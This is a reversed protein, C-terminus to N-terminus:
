IQTEPQDEKHLLYMIGGDCVMAGAMQTMAVKSFLQKALFSFPKLILKVTAKPLKKLIDVTSLNQSTVKRVAESQAIKQVVRSNKLGAVSKTFTQKLQVKQAVRKAVKELKLKAKNYRDIASQASNVAVGAVGSMAGTGVIAEAVAVGQTQTATDAKLYYKKKQADWKVDGKDIYVQLQRMAQNYNQVRSQRLGELATIQQDLKEVRQSAGQPTSLEKIITQKEHEILATELKQKLERRVKQEKDDTTSKKVGQVCQHCLSGAETQSEIKKDASSFAGAMKKISDWVAFEVALRYLSGAVCGFGLHKMVGVAGMALAPAATQYVRGQKNTLYLSKTKQRFAKQEKASCPPVGATVKTRTGAPKVFSPTMRFQGRVDVMCIDGSEQRYFGASARMSDVHTAGYASAMGYVIFVCVLFLRM